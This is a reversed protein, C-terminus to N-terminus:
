SIDMFACGYSNTALRFRLLLSLYTLVAHLYISGVVFALCHSFYLRGVAHRWHMLIIIHEDLCFIGMCSSGTVIVVVANEDGAQTQLDMEMHSWAMRELPAEVELHHGQNAKAQRNPLNLIWHPDQNQSAILHPGGSRPVHLPVIDLHTWQLVAIFPAAVSVVDATHHAAHHLHVEHGAEEAETDQPLEEELHVETVGQPVILTGGPIGTM